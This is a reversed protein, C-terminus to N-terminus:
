KRIYTNIKLLSEAAQHKLHTAKVRMCKLRKVGPYRLLTFYSTLAIETCAQLPGSHELVNLIGSNM